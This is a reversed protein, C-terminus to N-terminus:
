SRDPNVGLIYEYNNLLLAVLDALKTQQISGSRSHGYLKFNLKGRNAEGTFVEYRFMLDYSLLCFMGTWSGSTNFYGHPLLQKVTDQINGRSHVTDLSILKQLGAEYHISDTEAVEEAIFTAFRYPWVPVIIEKKEPLNNKSYSVALKVECFPVSLLQIAASVEYTEMPLLRDKYMQQTRSTM